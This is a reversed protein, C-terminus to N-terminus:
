SYATSISDYDQFRKKWGTSKFSGCVFGCVKFRICVKGHKPHMGPKRQQASDLFDLSLCILENKTLHTHVVLNSGAVEHIGNVHGEFEKGTYGILIM